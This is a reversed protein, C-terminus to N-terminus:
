PAGSSVSRRKRRARCCLPRVPSSSACPPIDYKQGQEVLDTLSRLAPPVVFLDTVGYKHILYLVLHADFQPVIVQASGNALGVNM